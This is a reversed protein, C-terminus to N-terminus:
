PLQLFPAEAAGCQHVLGRVSIYVYPVGEKPATGEPRGQGGNKEPAEGANCGEGEM